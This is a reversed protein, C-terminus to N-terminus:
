AHGAHASLMSIDVGISQAAAQWRQDCPTDFLITRDAPGSLWVTEALEQELQGAAWGAYGLAILSHKPGKGSAM